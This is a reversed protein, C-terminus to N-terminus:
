ASAPLDRAADRGLRKTARADTAAGVLGGFVPVRKGVMTALQKGGLAGVLAAAVEAAVRQSTDPGAQGGSALWRANGPLDKSRVLKETADHGLLTVLLAARVGPAALDLGHLHAIAAHLRLQVMVLGTVNAPISVAMTVLGGINTVFGQAGALRTHSSILDGVARDVDGGAEQLAETAVTVASDFPGTGAIARDLVKQLFGETSGPAIRGVRPAAIRGGRKAVYSIVGM